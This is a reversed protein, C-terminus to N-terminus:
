QFRVLVRDADGQLEPTQSGSSQQMVNQYVYEQLEGATIQNDQNTDADGEMGKMLFYSFMGHKAEELPKATQDGAAATMVTFGDPVAQEKARIAIPRSAILMDPGRTTGSYCTDLFVTVSRPNAAAIDTFLRDRSVATDELLEPAGDHPLLYMKEGDDSALGHGAFFVYIDSQGAIAGRALWRKAALLVDKEDAGDNVLTKIRQRPVGLKEVAYDAFVRADSDAYVAAASTEKYDAVGIILALAKPNAEVMKRLPNLRAFSFSTAKNAARELRVSMSASLGSLDFAEVSVSIGGEPVYTKATFGGSADFTLPQGEFRLEAVGTNDSVRGIVTGQPGSSSASFITILPVQKDAAIATQQKQREAKLAKLERRLREAEEQEGADTKAQQMMSPLIKSTVREDDNRLNTESKGLGKAGNILGTALATVVKTVEKIKQCDAGSELATLRELNSKSLPISSMRLAKSSKDAYNTSSIHCTAEMLVSYAVQILEQDGKDHLGTEKFYSILEASIEKAVTFEGQSFRMLSIIYLAIFKRKEDAPFSKVYSELQGIALPFGVAGQTAFELSYLFAKESRSLDANPYRVSETNNSAGAGAHAKVVNGTAVISPGLAVQALIPGDIYKRQGGLDLYEVRLRLHKGVENITPNFDGKNAFGIPVWTAGDDSKFWQFGLIGQSRDLEPFDAANYKLTTGIIPSNVSISNCDLGRRKAENVYPVKNIAKAWIKQGNQDRVTALKCLYDADYSRASIAEMSADNPLSKISADASNIHASVNGAVGCTLGRRKAEKRYEITGTSTQWVRLGGINTTTAISCLYSDDYLRASIAEMSSESTVAGYGAVDYGAGGVGCSLGRSKAESVHPQYYERTEWNGNSTASGCLSDNGMLVVDCNVQRRTAEKSYPKSGFKKFQEKTRAVRCIERDSLSAFKDNKKISTTSRVVTGDSQVVSGDSKFTLANVGGGLSLMLGVLLIIVARYMAQHYGFAPQNKLPLGPM